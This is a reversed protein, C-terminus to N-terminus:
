QIGAEVIEITEFGSFDIIPYSVDEDDDYIRNDIESEEHIGDFYCFRADIESYGSSIRIFIGSGTFNNSKLNSVRCNSGYSPDYFSAVGKRSAFNNYEIEMPEDLSGYTGCISVDSVENERFENHSIRGTFYIGKFGVENFCIYNNIVNFGTKHRLRLGIKCQYLINDSIVGIDTEEINIAGNDERICDSIVCNSVTVSAWSNLKIGCGCHVIRLNEIEINSDLNTENVIGNELYSIKGYSINIDNSVGSRIFLQGSRGPLIVESSINDMGSANTILFYDNADSDVTLTGFISLSNGEFFIQTGGEIVVDVDPVFNVNDVLLYTYESAFVLSESIDGELEIVLKLHIAPLGIDEKTVEINTIYKIGWGQKVIVLHYIGSDVDSFIFDGNEATEIIEIPSHERHDFETNQDIQMGIQPWTDNAASITEDLEVLGYLGVQVGNHVTEDELRVTGSLSADDTATPSCSALILIYFTFHLIYFTKKVVSPVSISDNEKMKIDRCTGYKTSQDKGYLEQYNVSESRILQEVIGAIVNNLTSGVETM